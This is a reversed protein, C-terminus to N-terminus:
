ISRVNLTKKLTEYIFYGIATSPVKEACAPGLGKFLVQWGEETAISYLGQVMNSIKKPPKGDKDTEMAAKIGQMQMRRRVVDLPHASAQGCAGSLAGCLLMTATGAAVGNYIEIQRKLTEYVMFEVGIYPFMAVLTPLLGAYLGKFGGGIKFIAEVAEGIGSAEEPYVTLITKIVELPYVVAAAVMGAVGGAFLRTFANLPTGAAAFFFAGAVIRRKMYEFVLFQTGRSPAVKLCNAGNGKFLGKWGDATWARDLEEMMTSDGGKCMMVTSVMELPACATRSIVGAIAGAWILKFAGIWMGQMTALVGTLWVGFISFFILCPVLSPIGFINDPGYKGGWTRALFINTNTIITTMMSPTSSRASADAVLLRKRLAPAAFRQQQSGRLVVSDASFAGAVSLSILLPLTYAMVARGM